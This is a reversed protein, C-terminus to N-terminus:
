IEQAKVPIAKGEEEPLSRYDKDLRKYVRLDSLTLSKESLKNIDELVIDDKEYDEFIDTVKKVFDEVLDLAELNSSWRDEYAILVSILYPENAVQERDAGAIYIGSVHDSLESKFLKELKKEVQDLRRNFADPFAPRDYRKAIWGCVLKRHREELWRSEEPVLGTLSKKEVRFRDHISIEYFIEDEGSNSIPFQLVRPNRGNRYQPEPKTVKRSLMFEVFPEIESDRVLDCDQTVVILGSAGQTADPTPIRDVTALVLSEIDSHKVLSGQKWDSTRISTSASESDM